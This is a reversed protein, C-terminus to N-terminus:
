LLGYAATRLCGSKIEYNHEQNRNLYLDRVSCFSKLRFGEFGKRNIHVKYNPNM